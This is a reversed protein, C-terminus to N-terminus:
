LFYCYVITGSEKKVFIAEKKVFIAVMEKSTNVNTLSLISLESFFLAAFRYDATGVCPM